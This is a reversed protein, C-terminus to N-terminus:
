VMGTQELRGLSGVTLIWAPCISMGVCEQCGGDGLMTKLFTMSLKACCIAWWVSKWKRGWTPQAPSSFFSVPRRSTWPVRWNGMGRPCEPKCVAPGWDQVTRTEQTGAGGARAPLGALTVAGHQPWPDIRSVSIVRSRFSCLSGIENHIRFTIWVISTKSTKWSALIELLLQCLCEILESFISKYDIFSMINLYGIGAM